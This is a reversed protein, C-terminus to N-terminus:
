NVTGVHTSPANGIITEEGVPDALTDLHEMLKWGILNAASDGDYGDTYEISATIKGSGTDSVIITVTAM